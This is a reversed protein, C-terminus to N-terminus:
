DSTDHNKPPSFSLRVLEGVWEEADDRGPVQPNQVRQHEAMLEAREHIEEPVEVEVSAEDHYLLQRIQIEAARAVWQGRSVDEDRQEDILQLLAESIEVDLSVLGTM